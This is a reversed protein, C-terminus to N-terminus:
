SRGSKLIKQDLVERFCETLLHYVTDQDLQSVVREAVKAAVAEVLNRSMAKIDSPSIQEVAEQWGLMTETGEPSPGTPREPPTISVSPITTEPINEIERKFESIFKDIADQHSPAKSSTVPPSIVEANGTVKLPGSDVAARPPKVEAPVPGERKL